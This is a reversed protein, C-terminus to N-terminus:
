AYARHVLCGYRGRVGCTGASAAIYLVARDMSDQVLVCENEAVDEWRVVRERCLVQM